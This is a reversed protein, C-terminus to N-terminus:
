RAGLCFLNNEGRIFMRNAVLVPSAYVRDGMANEALLELKGDVQAVFAAGDQRVAFLRGDAIVPSAYFNSGSKPFAGSWLTRGNAPDLCEVEGRDRLLYCRDGYVAPTPVFTGVDTRMWLRNTATVDGDGSLKIGHLRPMGRDSRGFAVVAIDGVVIPSAVAPWNQGPSAGPNFGGCSWLLKGDAADHITLHEGGWALLAEKGHFTIVLPTTYGNDNETPTEYNRATKWRMEGTLKDFAALWSEGHHMRTVIVDKQTLVPSAGYDWNLMNPGFREVINIQWRIKGDFDLAAFRGSKFGVFVATGDTAPSPNSGSGNPNKGPQERGLKTQWLKEGSWGFALVTDEGDAPATVYIHRNWVMPTSCGKGPMPVKWLLNTQADWKIPYTNPEATGNDRPGRWRPWQTEDAACAFSTSLLMLAPVPLLGALWRLGSPNSIMRLNVGATGSSALRQQARKSVM